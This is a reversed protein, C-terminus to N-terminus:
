CSRPPSSGSGAWATGWRGGSSAASRGSSSPSRSSWCAASAAATPDDGPFFAQGIHVAAYAYIGYDFWEVANGVASAGIARRLTTRDPRHADGDAM